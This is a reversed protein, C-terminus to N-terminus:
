NQKKSKPTGDDYFKDHKMRCRLCVDKEGSGVFSRCHQPQESLTSLKRLILDYADWCGARRALELVTTVQAQTSDQRQEASVPILRIAEKVAYPIEPEAPM